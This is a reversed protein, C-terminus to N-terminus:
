GAPLIRRGRRAHLRPEWDESQGAPRPVRGILRLHVSISCCSGSWRTCRWSVRLRSRRRDHFHRRQHDVAWFQREEAPLAARKSRDAVPLRFIIAGPLYAVALLLGLTKM